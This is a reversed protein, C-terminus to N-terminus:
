GVFYWNIFLITHLALGCAGAAFLALRPLRPLGAALMYLPFIILIFRSLSYLPFFPSTSFLPILFWLWGILLYSARPRFRRSFTLLTLGSGGAVFAALDLAPGTVTMFPLASILRLNDYLSIWPLGFRRGWDQQANAFALPDGLLWWNYGMFLLLAAPALALAAFSGKLRSSYRTWYEYLMFFVLCIGLNRTLTALAAFLGAKWWDGKRTFYVCALAFTIFLPETYVSNIFLSAPMLAYAMLARRADGATLDLRFVRYMVSFSLLAFLNCVILGAAQYSLGTLALGRILLIIAPFFVISKASYGNEAVYTYWHADWRMFKEAFPSAGTLTPNVFGMITNPVILGSLAAAALVVATHLLFAPAVSKFSSLWKNM